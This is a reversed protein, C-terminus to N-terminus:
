GRTQRSRRTAGDCGNPCRWSSDLRIREPFEDRTLIRRCRRCEIFKGFTTFGLHAAPSAASARAADAREAVAKMAEVNPVIPDSPLNELEEIERLLLNLVDAPPRGRITSRWWNANHLRHLRDFVVRDASEIETQHHRHM